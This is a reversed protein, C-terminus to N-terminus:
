NGIGKEFINGGANVLNIGSLVIWMDDWSLSSHRAPVYVADGPELLPNQDLQGKKLYKELDVEQVSSVNKTENIHVVHVKNMNATTQMGNTSDLADLVRDGPKFLYFGAKVVAGFVYVRNHNLPVNLRDGPNLKINVSMDGEKLLKWLDIPQDVGNGSITSGTYDATDPNVGGVITLADLVTTDDIYPYSGPHAVEGVVSFERRNQPVYIYDLENILVDDKTGAQLGPKGLDLTVKAGARSTVTVQHMDGTQLAGGAEAIAELIHMPYLYAVPGPTTVFGSVFVSAQHRFIVLVDVAPNILWKSLRQTLEAAVQDTTKGAMKVRGILPVAVYGDPPILAQATSFQPFNPITISVVDDKTLKYNPDLTAPYNPAAVGAPAAM